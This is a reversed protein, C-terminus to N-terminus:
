TSERPFFLILCALSIACFIYLTHRYGGLLVFLLGLLGIFESIVFALLTLARSRSARKLQFLQSAGQSEPDPPTFVRNVLNRILLLAAVCLGGLFSIIKYSQQLEETTRPFDDGLFTGVVAYVVISLFMAVFIIRLVRLSLFVRREPPGGEPTAVPNPLSSTM